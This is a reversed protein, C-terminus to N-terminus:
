CTRIGFVPRHVRVLARDKVNAEQSPETEPRQGKEEARHLQMLRGAQTVGGAAKAQWTSKPEGAMAKHSRRAAEQSPTSEQRQSGSKRVERVTGSDPFDIWAASMTSVPVDCAVLSRLLPLYLKISSVQSEKEPYMVVQLNMICDHLASM